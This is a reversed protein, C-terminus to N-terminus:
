PHPIQVWCLPLRPLAGPMEEQVGRLEAGLLLYLCPARIAEPPPQGTSGLFAGGSPGPLALLPSRGGPCPAPVGRGPVRACNQNKKKTM